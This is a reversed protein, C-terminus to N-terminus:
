KYVCRHTRTYTHPLSLTLLYTLLIVFRNDNGNNDEEDDQGFLSYANGTRFNALGYDTVKCSWRGDIVCNTSKLRGHSGISSMHLYNM